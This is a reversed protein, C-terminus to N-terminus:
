KVKFKKSLNILLIALLYSLFVYTFMILCTLEFNKTIVHSIIPLTTIFIYEIVLFKNNVKKRKTKEHLEYLINVLLYLNIMFFLLMTVTQNNYRLFILFVGILLLNDLRFARFINKGLWKFGSKNKSASIEYYANLSYLLFFLIWPIFIFYAM